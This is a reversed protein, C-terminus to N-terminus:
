GEEKANWQAIEEWAELPAFPGDGLFRLLAETAEPSDDPPPMEEPDRGADDISEDPPFASAKREQDRQVRESPGRRKALRARSEARMAAMEADWTARQEATLGALAEAVIEDATRVPPPAEPPDFFEPLEAIMQEYENQAKKPGIM